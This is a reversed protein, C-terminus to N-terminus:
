VWHVVLLPPVPQVPCTPVIRPPEPSSKENPGAEHPGDRGKQSEGRVLRKVQIPLYGRFCSLM